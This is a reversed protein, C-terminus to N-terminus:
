PSPPDQVSTVRLTGGCLRDAENRLHQAEIRTNFQDSFLLSCFEPVRSNDNMRIGFNWGEGDHVEVRYTTSM